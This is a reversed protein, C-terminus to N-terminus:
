IKYCSCIAAAFDGPDDFKSKHLLQLLQTEIAHRSRQFNSFAAFKHYLLLNPLQTRASIKVATLDQFLQLNITYYLYLLHSLQLAV